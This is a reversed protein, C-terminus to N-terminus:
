RERTMMAPRYVYESNMVPRGSEYLLEMEGFYVPWTECENLRAKVPMRLIHKRGLVRHELLCGRLKEQIDLLDAWGTCEPSKDVVGFLLSVKVSSQILSHEESDTMEGIRVTISPFHAAYDGETYSKLGTEGFTVGEPQPIYQAYIHLETLEESKNLLMYGAFEQKLLAVLDNMLLKANM